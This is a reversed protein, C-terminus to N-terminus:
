RGDTWAEEEEMEVRERTWILREMDRDTGGDIWGEISLLPLTHPRLHEM